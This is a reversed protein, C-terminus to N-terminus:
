YGFDPTPRRGSTASSPSPKVPPKVGVSSATARPPLPRVVGNDKTVAAGSDSEAVIAAAVPPPQPAVATVSVTPAASAAAAAVVPLTSASSGCVMAIAVGGITVAAAVVSGRVLLTRRTTTPRPDQDEDTASAQAWNVRTQPMPDVLTQAGPEVRPAPADVALDAAPLAGGVGAMTANLVAPQALWADIASQMESVSAYRNAPDRQMAKKIIKEFAPDIDPTLTSPAPADSLAIKFMLDNFSEADFPVRGTVAEYLMVGVSYIDSRVDAEGVGRAQEPSLYFPTGMM